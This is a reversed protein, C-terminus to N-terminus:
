PIPGSDKLKLTLFAKTSYRRVSSYYTEVLANVMSAYDDVLRKDIEFGDYNVVADIRHDLPRCIDAVRDFIETIQASTRIHLNEFNIFITNKSKDYKLRQPITLEAMQTLLDMAEDHFLRADM